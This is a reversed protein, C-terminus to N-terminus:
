LPKSKSALVGLGTALAPVDPAHFLKVFTAYVALRVAQDFEDTTESSDLLRNTSM